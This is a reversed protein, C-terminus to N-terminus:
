FICLIYFNSLGNNIEYNKALMLYDNALRESPGLALDGGFSGAEECQLLQMRKTWYDSPIPHVKDILLLLAFFTMKKVTIM